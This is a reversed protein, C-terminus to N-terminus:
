NRRSGSRRGAQAQLRDMMISIDNEGVPSLEDDQRWTSIRDDPSPRYSLDRNAPENDPVPNMRSGYAANAVDTYPRKTNAIAQSNASMGGGLNSVYPVRRESPPTEMAARRATLEPTTNQARKAAANFVADASLGEQEGIAAAMSFAENKGLPAGTRAKHDSLLAFMREGAVDEADPTLYTGTTSLVRGRRVNRERGTNPDVTKSDKVTRADMVVQPATEIRPSMFAVNDMDDYNDPISMPDVGGVGGTKTTGPLETMEGMGVPKRVKKGSAVQQWEYKVSGDPNLAARTGYERTEKTTGMLDRLFTHTATDHYRNGNRNQMELLPLDVGQELLENRLRSIIFDNRIAGDGIESLTLGEAIGDRLLEPKFNEIFAKKASPNNNYDYIADNVIEQAKRRDLEIPVYPTNELFVNGTSGDPNKTQTAFRGRLPASGDVVSNGSLVYPVGDVVKIREDYDKGYERYRQLPEESIFQSAEGTSPEFGGTLRSGQASLDESQVRGFQRYGQQDLRTDGTVPDVYIGRSPDYEGDARRVPLQQDEAREMRLYRDRDDSVSFKGTRSVPGGVMPMVSGPVQTTSKNTRERFTETDVLGGVGEASALGEAGYPDFSQGAAYAVFPNDDDVIYMDDGIQVKRALMETDNNALDGRGFSAKAGETVEQQLNTGVRGRVDRLSSGLLTQIEGKPVNPDLLKQRFVEDGASDGLSAAASIRDIVENKMEAAFDAPDPRMGGPSRREREITKLNTDSFMNERPRGGLLEKQEPKSLERVLRGDATPLDRVDGTLSFASNVGSRDDNLFQQFLPDDLQSQTPGASLDASLADQLPTPKPRNAEAMMRQQRPTLGRDNVLDVAETSQAQVNPERGEQIQVMSDVASDAMTKAKAESAALGEARARSTIEDQQKLFATYSSSMGQNDGPQSAYRPSTTSQAAAEAGQQRLDDVISNNGINAALDGGEQQLTKTIANTQSNSAAAQPIDRENGAEYTRGAKTKRALGQLKATDTLDVTQTGSQGSTQGSKLSQGRGRGRFLALGGAGAGLIGAGLAVTNLLSNGQSNEQGTARAENLQQQTPVREQLYRRVEPAMAVKEEDSQPYSQGTQQIYSAYDVPSLARTRM